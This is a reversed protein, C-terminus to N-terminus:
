TKTVPLIVERSKAQTDQRGLCLLDRLDELSWTESLVQGCLLHSGLSWQENVSWCNRLPSSAHVRDSVTLASRQSCGLWPLGPPLMFRSTLWHGGSPGLGTGLELSIGPVSSQVPVHSQGAWVAVPFLACSVPRLLHPCPGWVLARTLASGLIFRLGREGETVSNPSSPFSCSPFSSAELILFSTNGWWWECEWM